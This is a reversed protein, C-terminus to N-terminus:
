GSYPIKENFSRMFEENFSRMFEFKFSLNQDTIGFENTTQQRLDNVKSNLVKRDLHCCWYGGTFGSWDLGNERM